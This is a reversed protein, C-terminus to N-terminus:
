KKAEDIAKKMTELELPNSVMKGNVFITPTQTVGHKRYLDIDHKVAANEKSQVVEATDKIGAKDAQKKIVADTLWSEGETHTTPQAEFLGNHFDWFQEPHTKWVYEAARAGKLSDAGHFPTNIFYMKAEGKDIYDKVIEPQIETDYFRCAPCLYDGFEVITVPAKEDGMMPQGKVDIDVAKASSDTTDSGSGQNFIVMAAIAGIVIVALIMAFIMNGKNKM